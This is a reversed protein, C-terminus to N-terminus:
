SPSARVAVEELLQWGMLNPRGRVGEGGVEGGQGGGPAATNHFVILTNVMGVYLGHAAEESPHVNRPTHHHM